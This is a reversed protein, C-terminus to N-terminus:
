KKDIVFAHDSGWSGGIGMLGSVYVMRHVTSCVSCPSFIPLSIDPESFLHQYNRFNGYITDIQKSSTDETNHFYFLFHINTYQIIRLPIWFYPITFDSGNEHRFTTRVGNVVMVTQYPRQQQKGFRFGCLVDYDCREVEDFTISWAKESSDYVATRSKVVRHFLEDGSPQTLRATSDPIEEYDDWPNFESQLKKRNVFTHRSRADINAFPSTHACSPNTCLCKSGRDTIEKDYGEEDFTVIDSYLLKM